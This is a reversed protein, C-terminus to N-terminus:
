NSWRAEPSGHRMLPRGTALPQAHTGTPRSQRTFAPPSCLRPRAGTPAGTRRDGSRPSQATSSPRTAADRFESRESRESRESLRSSDTSSARQRAGAVLGASSAAACARRRAGAWPKALPVARRKPFFASRPCRARSAGSCPLSSAQRAGNEEGYVVLATQCLRPRAAPAAGPRRVSAFGAARGRSQGRRGAAFCCCRPDFILVAGFVFPRKM